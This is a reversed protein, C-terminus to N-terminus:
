QLPKATKISDMAVTADNLFGRWAVDDHSLDVIHRQFEEENIKRSAFLSKVKITYLSDPTNGAIKEKEHLALLEAYTNVLEPSYKKATSTGCCEFVISSCLVFSLVIYSRTHM